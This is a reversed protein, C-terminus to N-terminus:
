RKGSMKELVRRYARGVTLEKTHGDFSITISSRSFGAVDAAPVIYSKHIRIFRDEPLTDMINKLSTRSVICGGEKLFIKIYNGMAQVYAISDLYVPIEKYEQKVVIMEPYKRGKEYILIAKDVARCFREYSFPKHLFDAADLEFGSLAFDEYATTFIVSCKGMLYRAIEIGSIGNMRMDLFVIEPELRRVADLGTGPESYTILEIGGRRRCFSEIVTLAPPEDDIAICRILRDM